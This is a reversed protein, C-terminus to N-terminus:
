SQGPPPQRRQPLDPLSKAFHRFTQRFGVLRVQLIRRGIPQQYRNPLATYSNPYPLPLRTTPGYQKLEKALFHCPVVFIGASKQCFPRFDAPFLRVAAGSKIVKAPAFHVNPLGLDARRNPVLADRVWDRQRDPLRRLRVGCPSDPDYAHHYLVQVLFRRFPVPQHRVFQVDRWMLMQGDPAYHNRRHRRPARVPDYDWRRGLHLQKHVLHRRVVGFM